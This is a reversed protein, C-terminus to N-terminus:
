IFRKQNIPQYLDFVSLIRQINVNYVIPSVERHKAAESKWISFPKKTRLKEM